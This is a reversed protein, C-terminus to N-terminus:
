REPGCGASPLRRPSRNDGGSEDGSSDAPCSGEVLPRVLVLHDGGGFRGPSPRRSLFGRGALVPNGGDRSGRRYLLRPRDGVAPGTLVWEVTEVFPPSLELPLIRCHPGPGLRSVFVQPIPIRTRGHISPGVPADRPAMPGVRNGHEPFHPFPAAAHGVRHPHICRVSYKFGYSGGPAMPRWAVGGEM